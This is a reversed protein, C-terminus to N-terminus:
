ASRCESIVPAEYLGYAVLNYEDQWNDPNYQFEGPGIWNPTNVMHLPGFANRRSGLLKIDIVNKGKQLTETIDLRYDPWPLVVPEATNVAVEVAAAGFSPISLIYRAGEAPELEFPMRYIMNGSYFPLSQDQWKGFDLKSPMRSIAVNKGDTDVGFQGLLYVIELDAKRDFQGELTLVNRGRKLLEPDLRITRIAPDVWWGSAMDSTVYRGNLEIRWREPQELALLVPGSPLTKVNFKYALKLPATPGLPEDKTMWPQVMHGARPSLDLADRLENDLRLIEMQTRSFPKKDGVDAKADARDLVLVNHDDLLFSWGGPDLKVQNGTPQPKPLPPLEKPQSSVVILRSGSPPIDIKFTATKYTLEGALKYQRAALTDWLQIQGGRPLDLQLRVTLQEHAEKRNTNVLFLVWDDGIRRFQHLVDAAERGAADRISVRRVKDQLSAAIADANNEVTKGEAFAKVDGNSEGEVFGAASGAFVVKGGADSFRRLLDLTTRRLTAVPPVLVARYKGQGIQLHPGAQDREVSAALETLLHEDAFDFDLHAGLLGAAFQHYDQDMRMFRPEKSDFTKMYLYYSEIPHIVALDCVAEGDSLLVNVRSFYDEVTKFQKWWPSQFHISAPYDRKAEGAMSYWSLHPCRLTIGLAAQWDGSHKYAEFTTEWGTCGYLESLVWKRGTQRAVSAVQKAALYEIRYQTLIDIGPAQMYPYFQMAAGVASVQHSLPDECLVHGTFLLNNRSCWEGIPKAFSEVFLRTRCRHYHYRARSEDAGTTDFFLEPLHQLLDYGFMEQFRHPLAETWQVVGENRWPEGCNPEDTFLGPVSKGFKEGCHRLYAEHTVEMFRAVAEPNMTDLYAYGNYWPSNPQLEISFKLVEAYQPLITIDPKQELKKYWGIREDEFVAGFVFNRSPDAPWDFGEPAHRSVALRRARYREDRTVLSGAAGSPWRDEDYLWAQTGTKEAEDICQNVLDFWEDSLYATNLGVRSHMFYGGMGMQAFLRIQRRLEDGTLAANWAWFPKARYAVSPDGFEKLLESAHMKEVELEL